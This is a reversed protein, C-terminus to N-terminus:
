PYYHQRTNHWVPVELTGSPVSVRVQDDGSRAWFFVAVPNGQIGAVRIQKIIEWITTGSSAFDDVILYGTCDSGEAKYGSHSPEKRVAIMSKKLHFAIIPAVLSGSLGRFAIAEFLHAKPRLVSLSGEIIEDLRQPNFVHGIYSSHIAM